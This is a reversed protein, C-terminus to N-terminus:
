RALWALAMAVPTEAYTGGLPDELAERRSRRAKFHHDTGPVEFAGSEPHQVLDVIERAEEFSAIFDHEGALALVPRGFRRWASACDARELEQHFRAVRGFVRDGAYWGRVASPLERLAPDEEFAQEPTRGHRLVLEQLRAMRAVYTELADGALGSLEAQRRTSGLLTEHWSRASAGFVIASSVSDDAILPAVRAGLSTGFLLTRGAAVFPQRGSDALAAAYGALETEFGVETCPPGESDGMGSREIRLTAFGAHTLEAILRRTPHDPALPHEVSTWAGGPLFVILSFPGAADPVTYIARLRGEPTVVRDLVVRAAEFRETPLPRVQGSAHIREGGREIEFRATAGVRLARVSRAIAAASTVPQDDIAALRDGPALGAAAATSGAAVAVVRGGPTLELGLYPRRALDSM